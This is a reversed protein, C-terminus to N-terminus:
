GVGSENGPGTRIRIGPIQNAEVGVLESPCRVVNGIVFTTGLEVPTERREVYLERRVLKQARVTPNTGFFGATDENRWEVIIGQYVDVNEPPWPDGFGCRGVPPVNPDRADSRETVLVIRNLYADSLKPTDRFVMRRNTRNLRQATGSGAIGALGVSSGALRLFRRRDLGTM